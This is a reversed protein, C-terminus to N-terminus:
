QKSRNGYWFNVNQVLLNYRKCQIDRSYPVAISQNKSQLYWAFDPLILLEPYQCAPRMVGTAPRMVQQRWLQVSRSKFKQDSGKGIYPGRRGWNFLNKEGRLNLGSLLSLDSRPLGAQLLLPSILLLNLSWSELDEGISKLSWWRIMIQKRKREKVREEIM